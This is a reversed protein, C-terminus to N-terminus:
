EDKNDHIEAIAFFLDLLLDQSCELQKFAGDSTPIAEEAANEDDANGNEASLYLLSDITEGRFEVLASGLGYYNFCVLREADLPRGREILRQIVLFPDLRGEIADEVMLLLPDKPREGHIKRAEEEYLPWTIPFGCELDLINIGLCIAHENEFGLADLGADLQWRWEEDGNPNRIRRVNMGHGSEGFQVRRTFLTELQAQSTQKVNFIGVLQKSRQQTFKEYNTQSTM